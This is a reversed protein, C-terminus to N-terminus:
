KSNDQRTLMPFQIIRQFGIINPQVDLNSLNYTDTLKTRNTTPLNLIICKFYPFM